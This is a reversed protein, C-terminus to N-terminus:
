PTQTIANWTATTAARLQEVGQTNHIVRSAAKEKEALPLQTAILRRAEDETMRDRLMLRQLQQAPSCSVVIVEHYRRYSGTEIMLAAEVVAWAAGAQAHRALAAEIQTFIEPHTLAELRARAGPDQAIRRRMARRDLYGNEDVVKEPAFAEIISQLTPTGPEVVQRAIVDADIVPSKLGRIFKGVTSKGTAIGGTLGVVRM